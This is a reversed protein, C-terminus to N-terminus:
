ARTGKNSKIYDMALSIKVVTAYKLESEFCETAMEEKTFGDEVYLAALKQINSM